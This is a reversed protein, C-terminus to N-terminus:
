AGQEAHIIGWHKGLCKRNDCPMKLENATRAMFELLEDLEKYPFIEIAEALLRRAKSVRNPDEGWIDIQALYIYGLVAGVSVTDKKCTTCLLCQRYGYKDEFDQTMKIVTHAVYQLEKAHAELEAIRASPDYQIASIFTTVLLSMLFLIMKKSVKM